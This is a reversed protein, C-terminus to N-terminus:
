FPLGNALKWKPWECEKLTLTHYSNHGYPKPAMHWVDLEAIWGEGKLHRVRDVFALMVLPRDGAYRITDGVEPPRPRGEAEEAQVAHRAPEPTYDTRM